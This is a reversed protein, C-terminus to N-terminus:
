GVFLTNFLWFLCGSLLMTVPLTLVWASLINRITGIQLNRLGGHAVMTGAVGSSLVHTTSVPLGLYTAAFITSFAMLEASAGQAYTLHTKGIREGITVVIRKWGVMTGIGLSLSIGLIVWFPAYDTYSKLKKIDAKISSAAADSLKIKGSELAKELDKNTKTIDARVRVHEKEPIFGAAKSEALVVKLDAIKTKSGELVKKGAEDQTADAPIAALKQELQVVTPQMTMLNKSHDLAYHAPIILILILMVLGVGKQGDNSGHSLSVGTCTAILVMRIWMPPPDESAEEAFLRPDKILKKVMFVLGMACVFGFLPSILLALGTEEAKKWNVGADNGMLMFAIGVGLISGILTHSSSAPIGFYWTGVNWIIASLLLAMVMAIGEGAHTAVLAEAPLLNIIGMAVGIGGIFVGTFNCIGSWIVATWPRLSKTYIVTAVANATDHFGNVFEFAFACVLCIILLIFLAPELGFM